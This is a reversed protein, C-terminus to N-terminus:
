GSGRIAAIMFYEGFNIKAHELHQNLNKSYTVVGITNSVNRILLPVINNSFVQVNVDLIFRNWLCEQRQEAHIIYTNM